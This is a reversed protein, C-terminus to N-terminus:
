IYVAVVVGLCIYVSQIEYNKTKLKKGREGKGRSEGGVKRGKERRKRWEREKEAGGGGGGGGGWGREGERLRPILSLICCSCLSGPWLPLSIRETHIYM